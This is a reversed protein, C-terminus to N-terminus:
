NQKFKSGLSRKYEIAHILDLKKGIPCLAISFTISNSLKYFLEYGIDGYKLTKIDIAFIKEFQPFIELVREDPIGRWSAKIRYHRTFNLWKGKIKETIIKDIEKKDKIIEAVNFQLRPWKYLSM